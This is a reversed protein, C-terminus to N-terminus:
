SAVVEVSPADALALLDPHPDPDQCFSSQSRDVPTFWVTGPIMCVAELDHWEYVWGAAAAEAFHEECAPANECSADWRIHRTAPQGCLADGFNVGVERVCTYGVPQIDGLRPMSPETM